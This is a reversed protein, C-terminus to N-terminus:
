YIVGFAAQGGIRAAAWTVAWTVAWTAARTAAPTSAAQDTSPLIALDGPPNQM